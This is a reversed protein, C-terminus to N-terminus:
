KLKCQQLTELLMDPSENKSVFTDAGANLALRANVVDNSMVVVCISRCVARAAQILEALPIHPLGYEILLLDVPQDSLLELLCNTDEADSVLNIESQKQLLHVLAQRSELNNDAVIVQM